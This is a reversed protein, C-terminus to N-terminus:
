LKARSNGTLDKFHEGIAQSVKPSTQFWYNGNETELVNAVLRAVEEPSQGSTIEKQWDARDANLSSAYPNENLHM